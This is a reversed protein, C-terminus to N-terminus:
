GTRMQQYSPLIKVFRMELKIFTNRLCLVLSPGCTTSPTARIMDLVELCLLGEAREELAGAIKRIVGM